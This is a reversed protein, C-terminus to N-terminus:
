ALTLIATGFLNNPGAGFNGADGPAIFFICPNNGTIGTPNVTNPATLFAVKTGGVMQPANLANVSNADKPNLEVPVLVQLFNCAGPVNTIQMEFELFLLKGMQTARFVFAQVGSITLPNGNNDQVQIDKPQYERVVGGAHPNYGATM